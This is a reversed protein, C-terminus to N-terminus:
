DRVYAVQSVNVYAPGRETHVAAYGSPLPQGYDTGRQGGRIAAFLEILGKADGSTQLTAGSGFVVETM